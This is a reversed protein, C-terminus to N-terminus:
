TECRHTTSAQHPCMKKERKEGRKKKENGQFGQSLPVQLKLLADKAIHYSPSRKIEKTFTAIYSYIATVGAAVDILVNSMAALFLM